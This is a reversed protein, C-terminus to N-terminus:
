QATAKLKAKVTEHAADNLANLLVGILDKLGERPVVSAVVEALAAGNAIAMLIQANAHSAGSAVMQNAASSLALILTTKLQVAQRQLIQDPGGDAAGGEKKNLNADENGSSM